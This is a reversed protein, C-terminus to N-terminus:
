KHSNEWFNVFYEFNTKIKEIAQERSLKNQYYEKLTELFITRGVAFGIIKDIKSAEKLWNEVKQKDEGRGLVIIQEKENLLKIIERWEQESYGEMKWIDVKIFNKLEKVAKLTEELRKEKSPILLEFILKYNNKECFQGLQYLKKFSNINNKDSSYKFLVKVYDPNFKKIHEEFNDFEFEFDKTGSREVPISTIINKEKAEKIIEEGYMEDVLIGLPKNKQNLAFAMFGEFIIKKLEKIKEEDKKSPKEVNLIDRVFSSRHDFPLIILENEM